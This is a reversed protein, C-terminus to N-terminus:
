LEAEQARRKGTWDGKLRRRRRHEERQHRGAARHDGARNRGKAARQGPRHRPQGRRRGPVRRHRAAAGGPAAPQQGQQEDLRAPERSGRAQRAWRLDDQHRQRVGQPEEAVREDLGMDLHRGQVEAGRHLRLGAQWRDARGHNGLPKPRAPPRRRSQHQPVRHVQQLDGRGQERRCHCPLRRHATRCCCRSRRRNGRRRDPLGDKRPARQPVVRRRRDLLRARRNGRVAGLRRHHQLSRG